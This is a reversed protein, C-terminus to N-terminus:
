RFYSFSVNKINELMGKGEQWAEKGARTDVYFKMVCKRVSEKNKKIDKVTTVGIGRDAALEAITVGSEIKEIIKLNGAIPLVVLKIQVESGKKM